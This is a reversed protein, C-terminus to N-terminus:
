RSNRPPLPGYPGHGRMQDPPGMPKEWPRIEEAEFVHGDRKEGLIRVASEKEIRVLPRVKTGDKLIVVWTTGDSDILSISKPTIGTITGSLFGEEPRSWFRERMEMMETYRPFRSKMMREAREDAGWASLLSAGIVIVIGSLAAVVAIRHRYGHRTNRFESIALVSFAILLGIWFFPLSRFFGFSFLRGPPLTLPNRDISLLSFLTMSLSLAAFGGALVIGIWLLSRKTAFKWGPEPEIGEHKIREIVKKTFESM